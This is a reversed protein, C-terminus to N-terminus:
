AKVALHNRPGGTEECAACRLPTDSDLLQAKHDACIPTREEHGEPCAWIITDIVPQGCEAVFIPGFYESITCTDGM